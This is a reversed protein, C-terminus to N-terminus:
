TKEGERWISIYPHFNKSNLDKPLDSALRITQVSLNIHDPHAATGGAATGKHTAAGGVGGHMLNRIAQM